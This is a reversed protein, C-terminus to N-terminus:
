STYLNGMFTHNIGIMCDCATFAYFNITFMPMCSDPMFREIYVLNSDVKPLENAWSNFDKLDFNSFNNGKTALFILM